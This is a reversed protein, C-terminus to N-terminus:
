RRAQKMERCLHALLVADAVAHTIKVHPYLEQAKAKTIRKDGGSLCGLKRQWVGPAIRDFPIGYAVLLGELFGLSRGFTFSSRVGMQPSSAVKELLAFGGDGIYASERSLTLVLFSAVDHSTHSLKCTQLQGDEDLAAIAGSTGPDIGLYIM